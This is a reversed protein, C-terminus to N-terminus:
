SIGRGLTAVFAAFMLLSGGVWPWSREIAGEVPAGARPKAYPHALLPFAALGVELAAQHTAELRDPAYFLSAVCASLTAAFWALRLLGRPRDPEDASAFPSAAAGVARMAQGYMLVGIAGALLREPINPTGILDKAVFYLDGDNKVASFLLYGAFWYLSIALVLILLLRTRAMGPAMVGLGIWALLAAALNGAPGGAAVWTDRVSCQFYVSSLRTIHGGLALCVGGHGIAEHAATAVCMAVIAIGAITLRDDAIRPM